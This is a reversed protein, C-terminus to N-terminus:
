LMGPRVADRISGSVMARRERTGPMTPFLSAPPSRTFAASAIACLSAPKVVTEPSSASVSGSSLRPPRPEIEVVAFTAGLRTLCSSLANRLPSTSRACLM